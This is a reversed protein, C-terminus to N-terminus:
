RNPYESLEIIVKGTNKEIDLTLPTTTVKGFAPPVIIPQRRRADEIRASYADVEEPALKKYEEESLELGTLAQRKLLVKFKGAPCGGRSYTGQFTYAKGQGSADTRGNVAWHVSTDESVLQFGVSDVPSGGNQVMIILPHVKPFNDPRAVGGCGSLLLLSLIAGGIVMEQLKM